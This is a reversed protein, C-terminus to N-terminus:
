TTINLRRQKYWFYFWNGAVPRNCGIQESDGKNVFLKSKTEPKGGMSALVTSSIM